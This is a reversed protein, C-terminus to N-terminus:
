MLTDLSLQGSHEPNVSITGQEPNKKLQSGSADPDPDPYIVVM